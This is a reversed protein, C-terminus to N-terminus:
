DTESTSTAPKDSDGHLRKRGAALAAVLAEDGTIELKEQFRGKLRNLQEIAKLKDALKLRTRIVLKREGDGSGGTADESIEVIAAAQERTLTTLDISANGEGNVSIYDQMNSLAVAALEQDLREATIELKSARKSLLADIKRRVNAITLARSAWVRAGAEAIGAAQAARSGNLDIVYERAFLEYRAATRSAMESINSCM